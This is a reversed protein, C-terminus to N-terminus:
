DIEIFIGAMRGDLMFDARIKHLVRWWEVNLSGGAIFFLSGEV